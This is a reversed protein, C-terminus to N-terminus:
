WKRRKRRWMGDEWCWSRVMVVALVWVVVEFCLLWFLLPCFLSEWEEWEEEEEEEEEDEEERLLSLL